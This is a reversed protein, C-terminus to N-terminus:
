KLYQKSSNYIQDLMGGASTAGSKGGPFKRKYEALVESPSREQFGEPISFLEPSPEGRIAFIMRRVQRRQIDSRAITEEVPLCGLEPAYWGQRSLKGGYNKSLDMEIARFGKVLKESQVSTGVCLSYKRLAVTVMDDSMGYTTTSETIPDISIRKKASVNTIIRTQIPKGAPDTREYVIVSSGDTRTALIEHSQKILNGHSDFDEVSIFATFPPPIAPPGQNAIVRVAIWTSFAIMITTLFVGVSKKTLM